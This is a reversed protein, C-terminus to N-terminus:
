KPAHQMQQQMMNLPNFKKFGKGPMFDADSLKPQSDISKITMTDGTDLEVMEMPVGNLEPINAGLPSNGGSMQATKEAMSKSFRFMKKMTEFDAANVGAAKPTAICTEMTKKGDSFIDTIECSIGSVKKTKGTAKVEIKPSVPAQQLSIGMREEFMKRQEPPLSELQSLMVQQMQSMIGATQEITQENMEMYQKQEDDIMRMTKTHTDMVIRTDANPVTILVRGNHISISEPTDSNTGDFYVVTDALVHSSAGILLTLGTTKFLHQM